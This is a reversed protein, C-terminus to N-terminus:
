FAFVNLQQLQTYSDDGNPYAFMLQTDSHREIDVVFSVDFFDM